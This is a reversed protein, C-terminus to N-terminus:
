YAASITNSGTLEKHFVSTPGLSAPMFVEGSRPLEEIRRKPTPAFSANLM